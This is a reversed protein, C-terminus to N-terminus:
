IWECLITRDRGPTEFGVRLGRIGVKKSVNKVHVWEVLRREVVDGPEVSPSPATHEMLGEPAKHGLQVATRGEAVLRLKLVYEFGHQLISTGLQRGGTLHNKSRGSSLEPVVSEKEQAEFGSAGVIVRRMGELKAKPERRMAAFLVVM